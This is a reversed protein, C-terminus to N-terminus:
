VIKVSVEETQRLQEPVIWTHEQSARQLSSLGYQRMLLKLLYIVPGITDKKGTTDLCNIRADTCVERAQHLLTMVVESDEQSRTEGSQNLLEAVVALAFRVKAVGELYELSVTDTYQAQECLARHGEELIEVTDEIRKAFCKECSEKYM